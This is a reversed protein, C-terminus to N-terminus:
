YEVHENCVEEGGDLCLWGSKIEKDCINCIGPEQEAGYDVDFQVWTNGHEDTGSLRTIGEIDQLKITEM